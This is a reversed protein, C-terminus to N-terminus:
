VHVHIAIKSVYKIDLQKKEMKKCCYKNLSATFGQVIDNDSAIVENLMIDDNYNVFKLVYNGIM